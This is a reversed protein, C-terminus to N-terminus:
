RKLDDFEGFPPHNRAPEDTKGTRVKKDADAIDTEVTRSEDGAGPVPARDKRVDRDRGDQNPRNQLDPTPMSPKAM